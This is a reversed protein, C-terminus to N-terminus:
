SSMATSHVARSESRVDEVAEMVPECRAMDQQCAPRDGGDLGGRDGFGASRRHDVPGSPDEHGPHDVGVDMQDAHGVGHDVQHHRCLGLEGRGGQCPGPVSQQASENRDAVHAAIGDADLLDNVGFRAETGADVGALGRDRLGGSVAVETEDVFTRRGQATTLRAGLCDAEHPHGVAGVANQRGHALLQFEAGGLDLKIPPPPAAERYSGSDM